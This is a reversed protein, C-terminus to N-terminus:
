SSRSWSAGTGSCSITGRWDRAAHLEARRAPYHKDVTGKILETLNVPHKERIVQTRSMKLIDDSFVTLREVSSVINHVIDKGKQSLHEMEDLIQANGSIMFM